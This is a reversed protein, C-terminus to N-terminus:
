TLKTCYLFLATQKTEQKVFAMTTTQQQRQPASTNKAQQNHVRAKNRRNPALWCAMQFADTRQRLLYIDFLRDEFM